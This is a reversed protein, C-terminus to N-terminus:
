PPGEGVSANGLILQVCWVASWVAEIRDDGDSARVWSEKEREKSKYRM